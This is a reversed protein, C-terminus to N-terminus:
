PLLRSRPPQLSPLLLISSHTHSYTALRFELILFPRRWREQWGRREMRGGGWEGGMQGICEREWENGGV